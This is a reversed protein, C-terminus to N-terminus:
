QPTVIANDLADPEARQVVIIAHKRRDEFRAVVVLGYSAAWSEFEDNNAREEMLALDIHGSLLAETIAKRNHSKQWGKQAYSWGVLHAIEGAELYVRGPEISKSILWNAADIHRTKPPSTSIVNSLAALVILFVMAWRWRPHRQYLALLGLAVLPIALLNLLAVYRGSMFLQDLVYASLPLLYLLFGWSFPAWRHMLSRTPERLLVYGAPIVFIGFNSVFKVPILSMAGFFLIYHAGDAIFKTLATDALKEVLGTFIRYKRMPDISGIQHSIRGSLEFDGFLWLLGLGIAGAGMVTSMMGLRLWGGPQRIAPVQWLFFAALFALSEPRFLAAACVSLQLLMARGWGPQRAWQLALWLALFLFFWAGFERIIYDRYDNLAPLALVVACAAWGAEPFRDRTCAVILACTGALFLTSLLYGSTEADLGTLSSLTGMLIPLFLWDFVQRAAELGGQQFLRAAEVYLMGDGNPTITGSIAILSLLLSGIFATRIPGIREAFARLRRM